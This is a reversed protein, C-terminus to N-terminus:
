YKPRTTRQEKITLQKFTGGEKSFTQTPQKFGRALSKLLRKKNPRLFPSPM